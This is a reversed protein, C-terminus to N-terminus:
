FHLIEVSSKMRPNKFYSFLNVEATNPTSWCLSSSLSSSSSVKCTRYRSPTKPLSKIGISTIIIIRIKTTIIKTTTIVMTTDIDM